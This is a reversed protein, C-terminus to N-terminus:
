PIIFVPLRALALRSSSGTQLKHVQTISPKAFIDKRADTRAVQMDLGTANVTAITLFRKFENGLALEIGLRQDSMGIRKCIDVLCILQKFIFTVANNLNRHLTLFHWCLLAPM